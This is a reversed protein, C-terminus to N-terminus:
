KESKGSQDRRAARPGAFIAYVNGPASRLESVLKFGDVEVPEGARTLVVIDLLAALQRRLSEVRADEHLAEPLPGDLAFHLTFPCAEQPPQAPTPRPARARKKEFSPGMADGKGSGRKRAFASASRKQRSVTPRAM